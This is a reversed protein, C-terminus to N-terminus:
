DSVPLWEHRPSRKHNGYEEQQEALVDPQVYSWPVGGKM